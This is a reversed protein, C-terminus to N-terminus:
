SLKELQREYEELKRRMEEIIHAPASGLFKEDSLQRKSNAINKVLQERLKKKRERLAQLQDAPLDLELDFDPTSRVAEAQAPASGQQFEINVNALKVIAESQARAIDLVAPQGYLTGKLPIKPDIKLDSRMNRALLIVNQV